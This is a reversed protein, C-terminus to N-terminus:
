KEQALNEKAIKMLNSYFTNLIPPSGDDFGGWKIEKEEGNSSMMLTKSMNGPVNLDLDKFNLLDYNSFMQDVVKKKIKNLKVREEMNKEVYFEGNDILYYTTSAGTFGGASGFTLMRGEFKDPTFSTTKCSSVFVLLFTIIVVFISAKM